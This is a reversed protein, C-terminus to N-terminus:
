NFRWSTYNLGNWVEWPSIEGLAKPRCTCGYPGYLSCRHWHDDNYLVDMSPCPLFHCFSPPSGFKNSRVGGPAGGNGASHKWRKPRHSPAPRCSSVTRPVHRPSLRRRRSRHSRSGEVRHLQLGLLSASLIHILVFLDLLWDSVRWRQSSIRIRDAGPHTWSPIAMRRCAFFGPLNVKYFFLTKLLPRNREFSQKVHFDLMPPLAPASMASSWSNKSAKPSSKDSCTSKSHNPCKFGTADLRPLGDWEWGMMLGIKTTSCNTSRLRIGQPPLTMKGATQQDGRWTHPAKHKQSNFLLGSVLSAAYFTAM